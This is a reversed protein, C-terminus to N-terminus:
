PPIIKCFLFIWDRVIGNICNSKLKGILCKQSVKDFAKEFDLYIIDVPKNKCLKDHMDEYFNLLNTPCLIGWRFGHKNDRILLNSASLGPTARSILDNYKKAM